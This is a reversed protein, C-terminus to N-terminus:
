KGLRDRRMKARRLERGSLPVSVARNMNSKALSKGARSSMATKGGTKILDQALEIPIDEPM